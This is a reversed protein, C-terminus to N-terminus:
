FAISFQKQSDILGLRRMMQIEPEDDVRVM